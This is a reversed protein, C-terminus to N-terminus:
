QTQLVFVVEDVMALSCYQTQSFSHEVYRLQHAKRYYYLCYFPMRLIEYTQGLGYWARYDRKNVEIAHRFYFSFKICKISSDRRFTPSSELKLSVQISTHCSFHEEDGHVRPGHPDLCRPLSPQTQPGAPLVASGERASLTFQLLKRQTVCSLNSLYSLYAWILLNFLERLLVVLRNVKVSVLSAAHRWETSIM